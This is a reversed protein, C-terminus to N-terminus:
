LDPLTVLTMEDQCHRPAEPDADPAITMRLEAGCIECRYGIKVKRLEGAPPPEPIPRALGGLMMIGLRLIVWAAGAAAVVSVVGYGAILAIAAGLVVLGDMVPHKVIGDRSRKM